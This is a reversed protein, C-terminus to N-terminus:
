TLTGKKTELFLIRQLGTVNLTVRSLRGANRSSTYISADAEM